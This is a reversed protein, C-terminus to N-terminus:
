AAAVQRALQTVRDRETYHGPQHYMRNPATAYPLDTHGVDVRRFPRLTTFIVDSTQQYEPGIQYDPNEFARYRFKTMARWPDEAPFIAGWGVLSSHPYEAQKWGPMNCLREREQYEAVLELAPVICDDDQTYILDNKAYKIAAYRGYVGHNTRKSNDWVVIDDFPLSELIPTM